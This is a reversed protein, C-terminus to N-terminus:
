IIHIECKTSTYRWINHKMMVFLASICIMICNGSKMKNESFSQILKGNVNDQKRGFTREIMDEKLRKDHESNIVFESSKEPSEPM